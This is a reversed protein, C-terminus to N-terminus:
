VKGRVRGLDILTRCLNGLSSANALKRGPRKVQCIEGEDRRDRCNTGMM